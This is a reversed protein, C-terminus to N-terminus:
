ATLEVEYGSKSRINIVQGGEFIFYQGRVGVLPLEITPTKEFSLSIVKLPYENVPYDLQVIENNDSIFERFLEPILQICREKENLLDLGDTQENKLMKQWNTKDTFHPKLAVELEGALRRYPTEALIIGQFAGQDIWRTPIQGDRTVGVKVTNTLALYVYHKTLHNRKEWDPDRGKGLHAECLEPRLICEANDPANAFCPYCMGEGFLKNSKKGCVTCFLRGTWKLQLKYGILENVAVKDSGLNLFYQVPSIYSTQMKDLVGLARMATPPKAALTFFGVAFFCRM